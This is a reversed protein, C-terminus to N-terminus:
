TPRVRPIELRFRAGRGEKRALAQLRGHHILAIEKAVALGLGAGGGKRSSPHSFRDMVSDREGEPIGEGDDEIELVVVGEEVGGHVGIHGQEPAFKAANDLLNQVATGLLSESGSVEPVQDMRVDLHLNKVTVYPEIRRLGQEVIGQLRVPAFALDVKEADARALFLLQDVIRALHAAEDMITAFRALDPDDPRNRILLEAEGRIVTLPTKLQHSASASFDRIRSFSSELEAFTSNLVTALRDIEDGTGRLPVREGLNRSRIRAAAAAIANIPRMARGAVVWGGFLALAVIPVVATSTQALFARRSESADKESLGVQLYRRRGDDFKFLRTRVRVPIGGIDMSNTCSSGKGAIEKMEETLLFDRGGMARTRGIVEGSETRVETFLIVRQHAAEDSKLEELLVPDGEALIHEMERMEDDMFRDMQHDLNRVLRYYFYGVLLTLTTVTFGM